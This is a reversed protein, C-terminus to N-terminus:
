NLCESCPETRTVIELEFQLVEANYETDANDRRSVNIELLSICKHIVYPPDKPTARPKSVTNHYQNVALAHDPRNSLPTGQRHREVGNHPSQSTETKRPSENKM